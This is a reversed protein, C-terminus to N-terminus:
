STKCGNRLPQMKNLSFIRTIRSKDPSLIMNFPQGMRCKYEKKGLFRSAQRLIMLVVTVRIVGITPSTRAHLVLQAKLRIRVVAARQLRAYFAIRFKAVWWAM